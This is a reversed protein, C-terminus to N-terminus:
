VLLRLPQELTARVTNLFAAADAGSLVRHDCTLTLSLRRCPVVSGDRVTAQEQISGVALIAAQPANVIADFRTIAFMGLNSITFTAGSVEPPTLAGSRARQALTATESALQVLPKTDADFVVPVLLADQAAVAIAINVRGYLEVAGDVYSANVRPHSRLALACGRVLLDNISPTRDPELEALRSRLDLAADMDVEITLTFDPVTARSQTMRAAITSQVTSLREITIEGRESAVPAATTQRAPASQSAAAEVDQKVVRGGPGTGTLADLQVGLQRALRRAGPSVNIATEAV